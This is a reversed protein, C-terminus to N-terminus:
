ADRPAGAAVCRCREDLVAALLDLALVAIVVAVAPVPSTWCRPAFLNPAIGRLRGWPRGSSGHPTKGGGHRPGAQVAPGRCTLAQLRSRRSLPQLDRNSRGQSARSPRRRSRGQTSGGGPAARRAGSAAQPAETWVGSVHSGPSIKRRRAGVALGDGAGGCSPVPRHGMPGVPGALRAPPSTPSPSRFLTTYPFLTSRPPRRIM